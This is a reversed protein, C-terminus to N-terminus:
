RVPCVMFASTNKTSVEKFAIILLVESIELREFSNKNRQFFLSKGCM